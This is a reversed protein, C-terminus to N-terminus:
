KGNATAGVEGITKAAGGGYSCCVLGINGSAVMTRASQQVERFFSVFSDM